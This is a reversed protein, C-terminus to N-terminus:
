RRRLGREARPDTYYIAVPPDPIAEWHLVFWFVRLLAGASANTRPLSVRVVSRQM